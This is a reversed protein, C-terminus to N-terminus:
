QMDNMEAFCSILCGKEVNYIEVLFATNSMTYM